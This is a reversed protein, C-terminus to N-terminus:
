TNNISQYMHQLKKRKIELSNDRIEYKIKRRFRMFVVMGAAAATILFILDIVSM